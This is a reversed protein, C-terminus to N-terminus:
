ESEHGRTEEDPGGHSRSWDDPQSATALLQYGSRTLRALTRFLREGHTGDAVRLIDDRSILLLRTEAM